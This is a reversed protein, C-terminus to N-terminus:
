IRLDMYESRKDIALQRLNAFGEAFLLGGNRSFDVTVPLFGWGWQGQAVRRTQEKEKMWGTWRAPYREEFGPIQPKRSRLATPHM